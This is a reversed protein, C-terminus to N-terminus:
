ASAGPRMHKRVGALFIKACEVPDHLVTTLTNQQYRSYASAMKALYFAGEKASGDFFEGNVGAKIVDVMPEIPTTLVPRGCLLAEQAPVPGAAGWAANVFIGTRAYLAVVEEKTLWVKSAEHGICPLGALEAAEEIVDFRKFGDSNGGLYGVTIKTPTPQRTFGTTTICQPAYFSSIGQRGLHQRCYDAMVHVWYPTMASISQFYWEDSGVVFGHVTLGYPVVLDRFYSYARLNWFHAADYQRLTRDFTPPIGAGKRVALTDVEHGCARIGEAMALVVSETGSLIYDYAFFLRM